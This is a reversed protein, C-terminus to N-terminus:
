SKASDSLVKEGRGFAWLTILSYIILGFVMAQAGGQLATHIAVAPLISQTWHRLLAFLIGLLFLNFMRELIRYATPGSGYDLLFSRQFTQTHVLAFILATLSIAWLSPRARGEFVKLLLLFLFGRFFIEEGTRAIAELAGQRVQLVRGILACMPITILMTLALRGNLSFGFERVEWGLLGAFLILPVYLLAWFIIYTIPPVTVPEPDYPMIYNLFTGLAILFTAYLAAITVYKKNDSASKVM